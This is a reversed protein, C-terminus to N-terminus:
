LVLILVGSYVFLVKLKHILSANKMLDHCSFASPSRCGCPWCSIGDRITRGSMDLRSNTTDIRAERVRVSKPGCDIALLALAPRFVVNDACGSDHWVRTHGTMSGRQERRQRLNLAM